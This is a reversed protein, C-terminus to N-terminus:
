RPVSEGSRDATGEIYLEWASCLLLVGARTLHGLAKKGKGGTLLSADTGIIRNVDKMMAGEFKGMAASPM